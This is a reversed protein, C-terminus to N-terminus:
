AEGPGGAAERLLGELETRERPELDRSRALLAGLREKRYGDVIRELNDRLVQPVAEGDDLLVERALRGLHRGETDDRFRELLGATTIQPNETVTELLQRLLQAGPQRVEALGPVGLLGTGAAPHHLILAIAKRILSNRREAGPASPEVPGPARSRRRTTSAPTEPALFLTELREATLGVRDALQTILLERYVGM